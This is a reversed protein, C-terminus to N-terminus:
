RDGGAPAHSRTLAYLPIGALVTALGLGAQVPERVIMFGATALTALVFLGPTWPFGCVAVRRPGERMRVWFLASVTAAASIGLTFGIYGLLEALGSVWLVVLSLGAQLMVAAAPVDGGARFVRPFLGDEAMKAYVRPGAMVMSSISTFLALSVLASVARRAPLGGLAEAAVAGVDATGALQDVPAAYVFVANLGLYVATVCLTALVLSRPLTRRPDRMDEAIYV